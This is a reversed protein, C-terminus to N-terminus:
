VFVQIRSKASETIRDANDRIAHVTIYPFRVNHCIDVIWEDKELQSIIDLNEETSITKWQNKVHMASPTASKHKEGMKTGIALASLAHVVHAV